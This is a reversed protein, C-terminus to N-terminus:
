KVSIRSRCENLQHLSASTQSCVYSRQAFSKEAPPSPSYRSHGYLNAQWESFLTYNSPLRNALSALSAASVQGYSYADDFSYEHRWVPTGQANSAELDLVHQVYDVIRFPKTEYSYVRFSPNNGFIPSVSGDLMLFGPAGGDRSASFRRFESSHLHGFLGVIGHENVLAVLRDIYQQQMLMVNAASSFSDVGPPVHGLLIIQQGRQKATAIQREVFAFQGCPDADHWAPVHRMSYLVTNIAILRVGPLVEDVAYGAFQRWEDEFGDPVMHQWADSAVEAYWDDSCTCAYDPFVDNNGLVTWVELNGVSAEIQARASRMAALSAVKSPQSHGSLDGSVMVATANPAVQRVRDMMASLLSSTTDCGYTGFLSSSLKTADCKNSQADNQHNDDNADSHRCRRQWALKANLESQKAMNRQWTRQAETFHSPSSCVHAADLHVDSMQVFYELANVAHLLVILLLMRKMM